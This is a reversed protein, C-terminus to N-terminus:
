DTPESDAIRAFLRFLPTYATSGSVAAGNDADKAAPEALSISLVGLKTSPIPPFLTRGSIHSRALIRSRGRTTERESIAAATLSKISRLLTTASPAPAADTAAAVVPLAPDPFITQITDPPFMSEEFNTFIRAPLM